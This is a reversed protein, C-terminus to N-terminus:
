VQSRKKMELLLERFNENDISSINSENIKKSKNQKQVSDGYFQNNKAIERKAMYESNKLFMRIDSIKLQPFKRQIETLINRYQFQLLQIIAPHDVEVILSSHDIEIVKSYQGLKLGVIKDWSNFM